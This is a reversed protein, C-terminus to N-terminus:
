DQANFVVPVSKFPSLHQKFFNATSNQGARASYRSQVEKSGIGNVQHKELIVHRFHAAIRHCRAHFSTVGLNWDHWVEPPLTGLNLSGLGQAPSVQAAIANRDEFPFEESCWVSSRLGWAYGSAGLNKRVLGTLLRYDGRSSEAIIHPLDPIATL